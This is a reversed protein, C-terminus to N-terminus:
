YVAELRRNRDRQMLLGFGAHDGVTANFGPMQIGTVYRVLVLVFLVASRHVLTRDENDTQLKMSDM